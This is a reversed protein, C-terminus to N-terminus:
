IKSKVWKCAQYLVAAIPSLLVAIVIVYGIHFLVVQVFPKIYGLATGVFVFFCFALVYPIPNSQKRSKKM